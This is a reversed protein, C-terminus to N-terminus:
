SPIAELLITMREGNDAAAWVLTEQTIQPQKQFEDIAYMLLLGGVAAGIDGICDAPHHLKKLGAFAQGLRSLM